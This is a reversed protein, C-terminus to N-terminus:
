LYNSGKELKPKYDPTGQHVHVVKVIQAGGHQLKAPSGIQLAFTRHSKKSSHAIRTVRIAFPRIVLLM